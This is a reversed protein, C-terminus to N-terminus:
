FKELIGIILLYYIGKRDGLGAIHKSIGMLMDLDSTPGARSATSPTDVSLREM